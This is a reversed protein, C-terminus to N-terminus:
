PDCDSVDCDPPDPPDKWRPDRMIERFVELYDRIVLELRQNGNEPKWLNYTTVLCETFPRELRRIQSVITDSQLDEVKFNPHKMLDMLAQGRRQSLRSGQYFNLVMIETKSLVAALERDRHVEAVEAKRKM